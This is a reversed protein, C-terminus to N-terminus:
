RMCSSAAHDPVWLTPRAEKEDVAEWSSADSQISSNCGGSHNGMGGNGAIAVGHGCGVGRRGSNAGVSDGDVIGNTLNTPDSQNGQNHHNHHALKSRCLAMRTLYLDRKLHNVQKKHASFISVLRRQVENHHSLLGDSDYPSCNELEALLVNQSSTQSSTNHRSSAATDLGVNGVQGDEEETSFDDSSCCNGNATNNICPPQLQQQTTTLYSSNMHHCALLKQSTNHNSLANTNTDKNPSQEKAEDVEALPLSDKSPPMSLKYASLDISINSSTKSQDCHQGGTNNLKSSREIIDCDPVLTDTSKENIGMAKSGLGVAASTSKNTNIPLGTASSNINSTGEVLSLSENHLCLNPIINESPCTTPM